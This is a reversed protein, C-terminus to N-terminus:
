KCMLGIAVIIAAVLLSVRDRLAFLIPDSHMEGRGAVIWIRGFWYLMVPCM